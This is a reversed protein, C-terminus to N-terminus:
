TERIPSYDEARLGFTSAVAEQCTRVSSEVGLHYVRGTTPCIVQVAQLYGAAADPMPVRLLRRPNGCGDIDAHVIQAELEAFFRDPGIHEIVARRLEANPLDLARRASFTVTKFYEDGVGTGYGDGVGYGYGDGTGYGSGSGYGTGTGYGSGTGTGYGSGTGYGNGTGTGTGSGYGTGYGYGYGYGDLVM